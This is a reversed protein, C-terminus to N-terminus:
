KGGIKKRLDQLASLAIAATVYAISDIFSFGMGMLALTLVIQQVGEKLCQGRHTEAEFIEPCAAKYAVWAAFAGLSVTFLISM